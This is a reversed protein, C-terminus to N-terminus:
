VRRGFHATLPYRNIIQKVSTNLKVKLRLLSEFTELSYLDVKENIVGNIEAIPADSIVSRIILNKLILRLFEAKDKIVCIENFKIKYIISKRIIFQIVADSIIKM